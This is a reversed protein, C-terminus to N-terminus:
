QHGNNCYIFSLFLIPHSPSPPDDKIQGLAQSHRWYMVKFGGRVGGAGKLSPTGILRSVLIKESTLPFLQKSEM